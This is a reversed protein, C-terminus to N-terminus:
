PAKLSKFTHGFYFTAKPSEMNFFYKMLKKKVNDWLTHIDSVETKPWM